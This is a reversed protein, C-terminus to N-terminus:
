PGTGARRHDRCGSCPGPHQACNREIIHNSLYIYICICKYMCIHIYIYVDIDKDIDIHIHM